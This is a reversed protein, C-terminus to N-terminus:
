RYAEDGVGAGGLSPMPYGMAANAAMAPAGSAGPNGYAGFAPAAGGARARV